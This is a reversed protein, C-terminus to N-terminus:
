AKPKYLRVPACLTVSRRRDVWRDADAPDLCPTGRRAGSATGLYYVPLRVDEPVDESAMARAWSPSRRFYDAIDNWGQLVSSLRSAAMM